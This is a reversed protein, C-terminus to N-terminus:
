DQQHRPPPPRGCQFSPRGTRLCRASFLGTFPHIAYVVCEPVIPATRSVRVPRRPRNLPRHVRARPASAMAANAPTSIRGVSRGADFRRRDDVQRGARRRGLCFFSLPAADRRRDIIPPRPPPPPPPPAAPPSPLRRGGHPPAELAPPAPPQAHRQCTMPPREGRRVVALPWREVVPAATTAEVAFGTWRRRRATPRQSDGGDDRELAGEKNCRRMERFARSIAAVPLIARSTTPGNRGWRWLSEKTELSCPKNTTSPEGNAM